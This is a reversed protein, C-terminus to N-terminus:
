VPELPLHPGAPFTAVITDGPTVVGDVDVTAMVGALRVTGGDASRHVVKALLGPRFAEIQACPNRLGTVTVVASKGLRLRTGRPLSLLDLGATTVNEGLEAPAVRFGDRALADLLEAHILHIQRLNPRTPDIAVRSRHQVTAGAHADGAVGMGAVLRISPQPQKSFRHTGDIAVAVVRPRGLSM